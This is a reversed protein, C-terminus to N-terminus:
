PEHRANVISRSDCIRALWEFADSTIAGLALLAFVVFPGGGPVFSHLDSLFASGFSSPALLILPVLAAAHACRRLGRGWHTRGDTSLMCREREDYRDLVGCSAMARVRM